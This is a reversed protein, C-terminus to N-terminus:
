AEPEGEATIKANGDDIIYGSGLVTRVLSERGVEALKHRLFGMWTRVSTTAADSDAPWVADLLQQSSFVRNPHRMLYELLAKEKARLRVTQDGVTISSGEPDLVLDQIKLVPVIPNGARRLLAKVRANLVRIDFPKVLYDDAGYGLALELSQVDEKGTLFIIPAQGGSGRYRKCVEDGNIGPMTWDLAIVDYSYASLLQLADEGTHCRDV